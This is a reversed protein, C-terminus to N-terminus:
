ETNSLKSLCDKSTKDRRCAKTIENYLEPSSLAKYYYFNSDSKRMKPLINTVPNISIFGVLNIKRMKTGYHTVINEIEKNHKVIESAFFPIYIGAYSEGSIYLDRKWFDPFKEYFSILAKYNDEAM